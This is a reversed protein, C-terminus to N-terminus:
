RMSKVARRKFLPHLYKIKLAVRYWLPIKAFKMRRYDTDIQARTKSRGMSDLVSGSMPVIKQDFTAVPLDDRQEFPDIHHRKMYALIRDKSPSESVTVANM